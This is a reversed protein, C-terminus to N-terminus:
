PRAGSVGASVEEAGTSALLDDMMAWGRRFAVVNLNCFAGPSRKSVASEILEADFRGMLRGVAGVALMNAVVKARLEDRAVSEFGLTLVGPTAPEVVVLERDVVAITAGSTLSAMVAPVDTAFKRWAKDHLALLIGPVGCQPNAIAEDSIVVDARSAGGRAEPGYEQTLAVECGGALGAEALVVAALALGQGGSGACRVDVRWSV